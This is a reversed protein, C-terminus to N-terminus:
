KKHEKGMPMADHGMAKHDMPTHGKEAAAEKELKTVINAADEFFKGACDPCCFHVVKNKYVAFKAPDVDGGMIPCTANHLDTLTSRDVTKKVAPKGDLPCAGEWSVGITPDSECVWLHVTKTETAGPKMDNGAHEGHSGHDQASAAGAGLAIFAAGVLGVWNYMKKM